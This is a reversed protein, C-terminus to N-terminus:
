MSRIYKIPKSQGANPYTPTLGIMKVLTPRLLRQMSNYFSARNKATKFRIAVPWQELRQDTLGKLAIFGHENKVGSRILDALLKFDKGLPNIKRLDVRVSYSFATM